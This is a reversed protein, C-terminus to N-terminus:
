VASKSRRQRQLTYWLHLVHKPLLLEEDEDGLDEAVGDEGAAAEVAQLLAVTAPPGMDSSASSVSSAPEKM